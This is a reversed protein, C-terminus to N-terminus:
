LRCLCVLGANGMESLLEIATDIQPPVATACCHIVATYTHANPNIGLAVMDDFLRLASEARATSTGSGKPIDTAGCAALVSNYTWLVGQDGNKYAASPGLSACESLLAIAKDLDEKSTLIIGEIDEKMMEEAEVVRVKSSKLAAAACVRAVAHYTRPEIPVVGAAIMEDLLSVPHDPDSPYRTCAAAIMETYCERGPVMGLEAIIKRIRLMVDWANKQVDNDQYDPADVGSDVQNDNAVGRRIIAACLHLVSLCVETSPSINRSIIREIVSVAAAPNPPSACVGASVVMSYLSTLAQESAEGTSPRLGDTETDVISEWYELLDIVTVGDTVRPPRATICADRAVRVFDALRLALATSPAEVAVALDAVSEPPWRGCTSSNNRSEPVRSFYLPPLTRLTTKAMIVNHDEAGVAADSVTPDRAGFLNLPPLNGLTTRAMIADESESEFDSARENRSSKFGTSGSYKQSNEGRGGAGSESFPRAQLFLATAARRRFSTVQCTIPKLEALIPNCGRALVHRFM